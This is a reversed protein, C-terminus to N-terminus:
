TQDVDKNLWELLEDMYRVHPTIIDRDIGPFQEAYSELMEKLNKASKMYDDTIYERSMGMKHLLIAAM